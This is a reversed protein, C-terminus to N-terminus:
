IRRIIGIHKVKMGFIKMEGLNMSFVSLSITLKQKSTLTETLIQFGNCIGLVTGGSKAFRIVENMISSFKAIAGTRLYDGYSFGGPLIIVDSNQLSTEKHWLYVAEQQMDNIIANYADADCNSGPFVVIGFKIKSM